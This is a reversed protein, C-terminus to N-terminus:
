SLRDTHYDAFSSDAEAENSVVLEAINGTLNVSGDSEGIWGVAGDFSHNTSGSGINDGNFYLDVNSSLDISAGITVWENEPVDATAQVDDGFFVNIEIGGSSYRLLLSDEESDRNGYGAIAGDDLDPYYVLSAFSVAQQGEGVFNDDDSYRHGGSGDYESASFGDLDEVFKPSDQAVADNGELSEPFDFPSDGDNGGYVGAWFQYVPSQFMQSDPIASVGTSVSRLSGRLGSEKLGM